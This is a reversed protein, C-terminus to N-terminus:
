KAQTYKHDLSKIVGELQQADMGEVFDELAQKRETSHVMRLVSGINPIGTNDVM